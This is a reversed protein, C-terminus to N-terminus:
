QDRGIPTGSDDPSDTARTSSFTAEGDHAAAAEAVSGPEDAESASAGVARSSASPAASTVPPPPPMLASASAGHSYASTSASLSPYAASRPAPSERCNGTFFQSSLVEVAESSVDRRLAEGAGIASSSGRGIGDAPSRSSHHPGRRDGM